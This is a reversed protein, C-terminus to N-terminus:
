GSEVEHEVGRGSRVKPQRLVRWTMHADPYGLLRQWGHNLASLQMGGHQDNCGMITRCRCLQNRAAM